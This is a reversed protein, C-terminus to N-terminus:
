NEDYGQNTEQNSTYDQILANIQSSLEFFEQAIADNEEGEGGGDQQTAACGCGGGSMRNKGYNNSYKVPTMANTM